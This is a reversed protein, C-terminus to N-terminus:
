RGDVDTFFILETQATNAANGDLDTGRTLWRMGQRRKDRRSILAMECASNAGHNFTISIYGSIFGTIWEYAKLKLFEDVWEANYMFEMKKNKMLCNSNIFEELSNTLDYDDSFYFSKSSFINDLGKIYPSDQGAPIKSLCILEIKQVQFVKRHYIQGIVTAKTVVALYSNVQM